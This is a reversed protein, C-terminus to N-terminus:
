STSQARVPKWTMAVQHHIVQLGRVVRVLSSQDVKRVRLNTGRAEMDSPNTISLFSHCSGRSHYPM